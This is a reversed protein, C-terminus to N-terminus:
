LNAGVCAATIALATHPVFATQVWAWVSIWGHNKYVDEICNAVNQGTSKLAAKKYLIEMEKSNSNLQISLLPNLHDDYYNIERLHNNVRETKVIVPKGFLGNEDYGISIGFNSKNSEDFGQQNAMLVKPSDNSLGVKYIKRTDFSFENGSKLQIVKSQFEKITAPDTVKEIFIEPKGQLDNENELSKEKECSLFILSASIFVFVNLVKKM